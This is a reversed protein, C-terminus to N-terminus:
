EIAVSVLLDTVVVVVVVVVVVSVEIDDLFYNPPADRL